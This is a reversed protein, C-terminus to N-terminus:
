FIPVISHYHAEGFDLVSDTFTTKAETKMRHDIKNFFPPVQRVDAGSSQWFRSNRGDYVSKKEHSVPFLPLQRHSTRFSALM